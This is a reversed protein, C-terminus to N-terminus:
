LYMTVCPSIVDLIYVLACKLHHVGSFREGSQRHWDMIITGSDEAWRDEARNGGSIAAVRLAHSGPHPLSILVSLLSSLSGWSLPSRRLYKVNQVDRFFMVNLHKENNCDDGCIPLLPYIFSLCCVCAYQLLSVLLIFHFGMTFHCFIVKKRQKWWSWKPCKIDM